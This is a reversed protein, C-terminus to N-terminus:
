PPTHIKSLAQYEIVRIKAKWIEKEEQDTLRQDIEGWLIEYRLGIPGAAGCIWQTINRRFLM